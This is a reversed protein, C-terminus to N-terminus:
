EEGLEQLMALYSEKPEPLIVTYDKIHLAAGKQVLSNIEEAIECKLEARELELRRIKKEVQQAKLDLRVLREGIM